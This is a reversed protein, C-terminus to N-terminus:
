ESEASNLEERLKALEAELDSKSMPKNINTVTTEIEQKDKWNYNNKLSFIVGAPNKATFLTTEAFEEVKAKAKKITDSFSDSKCSYEILGQRTLDIAMALGTVTFPKTQFRYGTENDIDFCSEFYKDIAIQLEEPTKYKLPRGVPEGM